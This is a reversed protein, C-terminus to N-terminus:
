KLCPSRATYEDVMSSQVTDYTLLYLSVTNHSYSSFLVKHLNIHRPYQLIIYIIIYRPYFKIYNLIVLIVKNHLNIRRIHPPGLTKCSSVINPLYIHHLYLKIHLNVHHTNLAVVVSVLTNYLKLLSSCLVDVFSLM